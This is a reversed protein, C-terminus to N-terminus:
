TIANGSDHEAKVDESDLESYCDTFAAFDHHPRVSQGLVDALIALGNLEVM